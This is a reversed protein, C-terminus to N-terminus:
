SGIRTILNFFVILRYTGLNVNEIRLSIRRIDSSCKQFVSSYTLVALYKFLQSKLVGIYIRIFREEEKELTLCGEIANNLLNGILACLEVESVTLKEPVTAKANVAIHKSMALTIKSNLAADVM